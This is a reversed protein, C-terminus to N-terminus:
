STHIRRIERDLTDTSIRMLALYFEEGMRRAMEDEAVDEVHSQIWWINGFPDRIRSGRDGWANTSLPTVVMAGADLAVRHVADCDTVYLNLFAPTTPWDPKADFMMVVRDGIAVEAHGITGDDNPVRFREVAGFAKDLFDIFASVDKVIVYPTVSGYGEPIPAVNASM